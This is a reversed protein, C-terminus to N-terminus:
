CKILRMSDKVPIYRSESFLFSMITSSNSLGKMHM